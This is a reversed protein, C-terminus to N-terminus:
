SREGDTKNEERERGQQHDQGRVLQMLLTGEAVQDGPRAALAKVTGDHPATLQHEMKMAEIAVLPAGQKVIEGERVHVDKVLGPLPAQIRGDGAAEDRVAALPDDRVFRWTAGNLCIEVGNRVGLIAATVMRGSIELRCVAEECVGMGSLHHIRVTGHSTAVDFLGAGLCIIAASLEEGEGDRARLIVTVPEAQWHRWGTLRDPIDDEKRPRLFGGLALAAMAIVEDTLEAPRTLADFDREILGTDVEGAAFGEHCTLALLFTANTTCGAIRTGQLANALANLAGDRSAGHTIVKAIMPDYHASIEDGQRVGTDVRARSTPLHLHLLRGTAPLFGRAPDEAYLRAEFAHGNISIEDQKLPLPEGSAIRLQWEVLDIGTIAETVPHEVQLRTNMEMFWFRDAALAGDERPGAIFEVTGAGVYGVAKAAAVAAQCIAARMDQSLGPAPAEEIVKQHRRQVSCDREFLHVINGHSDGFVQVEIHRPNSIYKEILVHNDGFAAASESRASRLADTFAVAQEVLRMGKGGGGACAKILLPYGIKEAQQRLVKDDQNDGHYGPVVPVGAREMLRKAADKHGMAAIAKAPPGIFTLGAETCAEVFDSNESLFGYGPHIAEAGSLKAAKIVRDIRLYSDAASAPGIRIAEDAERVHLADRDADSYVAIARAGLRRITRMIRVAIEGRNAILVSKFM